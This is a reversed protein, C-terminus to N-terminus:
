IKLETFMQIDETIEPCLPNSTPDTCSLIGAITNLTQKTTDDIQKISQRTLTEIFDSNGNILAATLLGLILTCKDNGQPLKDLIKKRNNKEASNNTTLVKLMENIGKVFQELIVINREHEQFETM